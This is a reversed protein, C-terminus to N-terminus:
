HGVFPVKVYNKCTRKSCNLGSVCCRSEENQSCTCGSAGEAIDNNFATSFTVLNLSKNNNNKVHLSSNNMKKNSNLSKLYVNNNNNFNYIDRFHSPFLMSHPLVKETVPERHYITLIFCWPSRLLRTSSM